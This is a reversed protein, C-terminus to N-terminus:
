LTPATSHDALAEGVATWAARAPPEPEPKPVVPAQAADTIDLHANDSVEAALKGLEAAAAQIRERVSTETRLLDDLRAQSQALVARTRDAADDEAHAQIAQAEDDATNRTDDAYNDAAGRTANAYEDAKTRVGLAFEEAASRTTDSYSAADALVAAKEADIADRSAQLDDRLQTAEATLSAVESSAKDRMSTATDNATQLVQAIEEGIHAFDTSDSQSSLLKAFYAKVEDPDYGRRVLTFTQDDIEEPSM